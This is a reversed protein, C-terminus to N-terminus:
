KNVIMNCDAVNMPMRETSMTKGRVPPYHEVVNMRVSRLVNTVAQLGFIQGQSIVTDWMLYGGSSQKNEGTM